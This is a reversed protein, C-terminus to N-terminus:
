KRSWPMGEDSGFPGFRDRAAEPRYPVLPQARNAAYDKRLPHGVFEEYLLIRRLDPHGQFRVGFMDYAEREFWNAGRWIGTVSDVTPDDEPVTTKLLVRHNHQISHVVLVVDFRPDRKPWDVCTLEVFLDMALEPDDHVIQAARRFAAREVDCSALGHVDAAGVIADGLKQRLLEILASTM